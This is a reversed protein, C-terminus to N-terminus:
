ADLARFYRKSGPLASGINRARKLSLWRNHSTWFPDFRFLGHGFAELNRGAAFHQTRFGAAAVQELGLTGFTTAAEAFGDHDIGGVSVADRLIQREAM